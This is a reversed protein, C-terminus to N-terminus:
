SLFLLITIERRFITPSYNESFNRLAILVFNFNQVNSIHSIFLLVFLVIKEVSNVVSYFYSHDRLQRLRVVIAIM